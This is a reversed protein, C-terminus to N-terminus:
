YAQGMVRLAASVTRKGPCLIAGIMLVVASPWVSKSFLLRFLLLPLPLPM